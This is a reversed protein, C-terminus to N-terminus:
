LSFRLGVDAGIASVFGAGDVGGPNEDASTVQFGSYRLALTLGVRPSLDILVGAGLAYGIGGLAVVVDSQNSSFRLVSPGVMGEVYPRAGQRDAMARIGVGGSILKTTVGGTQDEQPEVFIYDFRGVLHLTRSVAVSMGAQFGFSATFGNEFAGLPAWVQPAFSFAFTEPAPALEAQPVAGYQTQPTPAVAVPATPVPPPAPTYPQAVPPEGTPAPTPPPAPPAPTQAAALAPAGLVLAIATVPKLLDSLTRVSHM